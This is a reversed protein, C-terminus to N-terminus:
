VSAIFSRKNTDFWALTASIFETMIGIVLKNTSGAFDVVTQNDAGIYHIKGADDQELSSGPYKYEGNAVEISKAGSAGATNDVTENAIGAFALAAADSGNTIFGAASYALLAGKYIKVATLMPLKQIRIEGRSDLQLDATLNAM